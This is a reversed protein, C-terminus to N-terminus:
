SLEKESETVKWIYMKINSDVTITKYLAM